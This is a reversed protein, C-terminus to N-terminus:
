GLGTPSGQFHLSINPAESVAWVVTSNLTQATRLPVAPFGDKEAGMIASNMLTPVTSVSCSARIQRTAIHHAASDFPPTSLLFPFLDLSSSCGFKRKSTKGGGWFFLPGHTVSRDSRGGVRHGTCVTSSRAPRPCIDPSASQVGQARAQQLRGRFSAQSAKGALDM